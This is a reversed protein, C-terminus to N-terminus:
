TASARPSRDMRVFSYCLIAIALAIIRFELDISQVGWGGAVACLLACSGAVISIIKAPRSKPAHRSVILAVLTLPNAWLLNMNFAVESYGAALWFLFICISAITSVTFFIYDFIIIKKGIKPLFSLLSVILILLALMLPTFVLAPSKSKEAQFIVSSNKVFPEHAALDTNVSATATDMLQKPLFMPADASQPRDTAPGLLLDIVVRLWDRGGIVEHLQDRLSVRAQVTSKIDDPARLPELLRWVRTACNDTFYRYNYVCNEKRMDHRLSALLSTKQGPTLNLEQEIITRNEEESYFRFTAKTDLAASMFEMHGTFMGGVFRLDFPRASIGYNYLIDTNKGPDIVRIATHGFASYLSRGPLITILSIHINDIPGAFLRGPFVVM